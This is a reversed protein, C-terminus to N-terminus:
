ADLVVAMAWSAKGFASRSLNQPGMSCMPFDILKKCDLVTFSDTISFVTFWPLGYFGLGVFIPRQPPDLGYYSAQLGHPSSGLSPMNGIPSSGNLRWGM